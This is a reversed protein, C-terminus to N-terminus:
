SGVIFLDPWLLFEERMVRHYLTEARRQHLSWILADGPSARNILLCNM